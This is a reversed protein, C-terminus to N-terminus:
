RMISIFVTAIKDVLENTTDTKEFIKEIIDAMLSKIKQAFVTNNQLDERIIERMVREAQENFASELSSPRKRGYNDTGNASMLQVIAATMLREREEPTIQKLITDAIVTKMAENDLTINSM